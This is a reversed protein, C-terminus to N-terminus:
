NRITILRRSRLQKTTRSQSDANRARQWALEAKSAWFTALDGKTAISGAFISALEYIMAQSFFPPWDAEAARFSYDAVVTDNAGANCYVQDTYRDFEIPKDNVTIGHVLLTKPSTAGGTPLQYAADWRATPAAGILNLVAQFSCFRFRYSTLAAEVTPEYINSAVVAETSSGSLSAIPNAGILVLARSAITAETVAM